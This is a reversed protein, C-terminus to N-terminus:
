SLATNRGSIAHDPRFSIESRTFKTLRTVLEAQGGSFPYGRAYSAQPIFEDDGMKKAEENFTRIEAESLATLIVSYVHRGVPNSCLRRIVEQGTMDPLNLDCLILQPRFDSAFNLGEEGSLATRVELGERNLLEAMAASLAAHDDILLVRLTTKEPATGATAATAQGEQAPTSGLLDMLSRLDVPKTFYHDFNDDAEATQRRKFGSIEIFLAHRL